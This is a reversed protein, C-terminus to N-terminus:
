PERTVQLTITERGTRGKAFRRQRALRLATAEYAALGQQPKQVFAETVRGAEIEVVIAVTRSSSRASSEVQQVEVKSDEIKEAGEDKAPAPNVPNTEGKEIPTEAAALSPQPRLPVREIEPLPTTLKEEPQAPASVAVPAPSTETPTSAPSDPVGIEPSNRLYAALSATTPIVILLILCIVLGRRSLSDVRFGRPVIRTKAYLVRRVTAERVQRIVSELEKKIEVKAQQPLVAARPLAPPPPPPPPGPVLSKETIVIMDPESPESADTEIVTKAAEPESIKPAETEIGFREKLIVREAPVKFSSLRSEISPDFSLRAKGVSIAINVAQFGSFPGMHADVLKGKSFFFAGRMTGGAIKLRGSENRSSLLSVVDLLTRDDFAQEIGM